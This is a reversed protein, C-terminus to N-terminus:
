RKRERNVRGQMMVETYEITFRLTLNMEANGGNGVGDDDRDDREGTEGSEGYGKGSERGSTKYKM